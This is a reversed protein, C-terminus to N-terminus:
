ARPAGGSFLSCGPGSAPLHFILAAIWLGLGAPADGRGHAGSGSLSISDTFPGRGGPIRPRRFSPLELPFSSSGGKVDHPHAPLAGLNASLALAFAASLLAARRLVSLPMSRPSAMFVASARGFSTPIERQVSDPSSTMIVM